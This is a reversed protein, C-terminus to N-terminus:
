CLTVLASSSLVAFVYLYQRLKPHLIQFPRTQRDVSAPTTTMSVNRYGAAAVAADTAATIVSPLDADDNKRKTAMQLNKRNRVRSTKEETGFCCACFTVCVLFGGVVSVYMACYRDLSPPQGCSRIVAGANWVILSLAM